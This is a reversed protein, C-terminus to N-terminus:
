GPKPKKKLRNSDGREQARNKNTKGQKDNYQAKNRQEWMDKAAELIITQIEKIVVTVTINEKLGIKTIYKSLGLPIIGKMGLTSDFKEVENWHQRFPCDKKGEDDWFTPIDEADEINEVNKRMVEIIDKKIKMKRQKIMPCSVFHTRHEPQKCRKCNPDETANGGYIRDVFYDSTSRMARTVNDAMLERRWKYTFKQLPALSYSTEKDILTSMKWDIDKNERWKNRANM